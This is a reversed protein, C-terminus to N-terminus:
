AINMHMKICLYRVRVLSSPYGERGQQRFKPRRKRKWEPWVSYDIDDRQHQSHPGDSHDGYTDSLGIAHRSVDQRDRYGEDSYSDIHQRWGFNNASDWREDKEKKWRDCSNWQSQTNEQWRNGREWYNKSHFSDDRSRWSRESSSNWRGNRSCNWAEQRSWSRPRQNTSQYHYHHRTEYVSYYELAEISIRYQNRSPVANMPLLEAPEVDVYMIDKGIMTPFMEILERRRVEHPSLTETDCQSAKERGEKDKSSITTSKVLFSSEAKGLTLPNVAAEGLSAYLEEMVTDVPQSHSYEQPSDKDSELKLKVGKKNAQYQDLRMNKEYESFIWM